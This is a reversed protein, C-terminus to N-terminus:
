RRRSAAKTALWATRSPSRGIAGAEGSRLSSPPLPHVGHPELTRGQAVAFAGLRDRGILFRRLHPILADARGSGLSVVPPQEREAAEDHRQQQRDPQDPEAAAAAGHREHHLDIAVPRHAGHRRRGLVVPRAVGLDGEVQRAEDLIHAAQRDIGDDHALVPEPGVVVGGVAGRQGQVFIRALVIRKGADAADGHGDLDGAHHAGGVRRELHAPEFARELVAGGLVGLRKVAMRDITMVGGRVASATRLFGSPM